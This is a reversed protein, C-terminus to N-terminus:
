KEMREIIVILDDIHNRMACILEEDEVGVKYITKGKTKAGQPYWPAKTAKANLTKLKSILERDAQTLM